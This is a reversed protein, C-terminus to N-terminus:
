DEGPRPQLLKQQLRRAKRVLVPDAPGGQTFRLADEDKRIQLRTLAQEMRKHERRFLPTLYNYLATRDRYNLLFERVQGAAPDYCHVRYLMDRLSRGYVPRTPDAPAVRFLILERGILDPPVQSPVPQGKPPASM